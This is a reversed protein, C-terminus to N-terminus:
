NEVGTVLAPISFNTFRSFTQIYTQQEKKTLSCALKQITSGNLSNFQPLLRCAAVIKFLEMNNLYVNFM